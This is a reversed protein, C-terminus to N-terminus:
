KRSRPCKCVSLMDKCNTNIGHDNDTCLYQSCGGWRCQPKTRKTYRTMEQHPINWVMKDDSKSDYCDPSLLSLNFSPVTYASVLVCIGCFLLYCFMSHYNDPDLSDKFATWLSGLGLIFSVSCMPCRMIDRDRHLPTGSMYVNPHEFCALSLVLPLWCVLPLSTSPGLLVMQSKPLAQPPVAAVLAQPMVVLPPRRPPLLNARRLLRRPILRAWRRSRSPSRFPM